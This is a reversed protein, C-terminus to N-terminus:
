NLLKIKELKDINVKIHANQHKLNSKENKELIELYKHGCKKALNMIAKGNDKSKIEIINTKKDSFVMNAFGAGHLGAIIKANKFASIQESFSHEGLTLISFGKKKFFNEVQESNIIKRRDLNSDKDRSIFVKKSYQSKSIKKSLYKKRLWKLIWSPINEVAKSPNNNFVCPHDVAFLNKCEIHKLKEGDLIKKELISLLTISEKQYIKTIAPLLYFDINKEGSKEFIGIRPLVDFIWHWYNNKGAGGTLLSLVDGNIKKKFNPTGVKLVLNDKIRSNVVKYNEKERFQFSPEKVLKNNIIFATDSVTNSYLRGNCIKYFFYNYKNLFSIKKSKIKDTKKFSTIKYIKGYIFNFFLYRIKKILNFNKYTM